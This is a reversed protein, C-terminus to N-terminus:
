RFENIDWESLIGSKGMLSVPSECIIEGIPIQGTQCMKSIKTLSPLMPKSVEKSHVVGVSTREWWKWICQHISVVQTNQYLICLSNM